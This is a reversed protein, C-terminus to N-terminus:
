DYYENSVSNMFESRWSDLELLKRTQQVEVDREWNLEHPIQATTMVTPRQSRTKISILTRLSSLLEKSNSYPLTFSVDIVVTDKQKTQVDSEQNKPSSSKTECDDAEVWVEKDEMPSQSEDCKNEILTTDKSEDEQNSIDPTARTQSYKDAVPCGMPGGGLTHSISKLEAQTSEKNKEDLQLHSLIVDDVLKLGEHSLFSSGEKRRCLFAIKSILPEMTAM